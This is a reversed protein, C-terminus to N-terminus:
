VHRTSQGNLTAAAKVERVEGDIAVPKRKAMERSDQKHAILVNM